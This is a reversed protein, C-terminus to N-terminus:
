NLLRIPFHYFEISYIIGLVSRVLVKVRRGASGFSIDGTGSLETFLSPTLGLFLHVSSGDFSL